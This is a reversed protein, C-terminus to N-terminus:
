YYGYRIDSKYWDDHVETLLKSAYNVDNLYERLEDYDVLITGCDKRHYSCKIPPQYKSLENKVFTGTDYGVKSHKGKGVIIVLKQSQAQFDKLRFGIIYRLKFQSIILDDQHLDIAFSNTLKDWRGIHMVNQHLLSEYLIKIREPSRDYNLWIGAELLFSNIRSDTVMVNDTSGSQIKNQLTQFLEQKKQFNREKYKIIHVIALCELLTMKIVSGRYHEWQKVLALTKNPNQLKLYATLIHAMENVHIKDMIISIMERAGVIRRCHILLDLYQCCTAGNYQLEHNQYRRWYANFIDTGRQYQKAADCVAVMETYVYANPPVIGKNVMLNWYTRAYFFRGQSKCGKILTVFSVYNPCMNMDIMTNFYDNSVDPLDAIHMCNFFINFQFIDATLGTKFLLNMIKRIIQVHKWNSANLTQMAISFTSVDKIDHINSQIIRLVDNGQSSRIKQVIKDDVYNQRSRPNKIQPENALQKNTLGKKITQNSHLSGTHNKGYLSSFYRCHLKWRTVSMMRTLLM